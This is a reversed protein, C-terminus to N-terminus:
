KIVNAFVFNVAVVLISLGVGLAWLRGELNARSTELHSLRLETARQTEQTPM